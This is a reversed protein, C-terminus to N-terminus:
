PQLRTSSWTGGAFGPIGDVEAETLERQWRARDHTRGTGECWLELRDLYIRFGGWHPPRPIDVNPGGEDIAMLANLDLGLEEIVEGVRAILQDRDELPQSQDSAWAGIRKTWHRNAFYADSEHEPAKAVRGELRAQRKAHDWLFTASAVPNAALEQGKDSAYNTYFQISGREVDIGRCLVVRARPRGAASVTGLTMANPNPTDKAEGMEDFWARFLPMPSGPLPDPLLEEASWTAAVNEIPM